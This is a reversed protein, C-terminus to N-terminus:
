GRGRTLRRRVFVGGLAILLLSAPEPVPEMLFGRYHEGAPNTGYGVIWGDANIAHAEELIWGTEAVLDTLDILADDRWLCAREGDDSEYGGVAEGSDNIDFACSEIGATEM